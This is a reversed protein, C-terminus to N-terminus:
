HTHSVIRVGPRYVKALAESELFDEPCGHYILQRNLCALKAVESAIVGVDHTVLVLTTGQERNLRHLLRYFQEQSPADVGVLPEDLVILDPHNVLARAILVRQQQGLSLHGIRRNREDLLGLLELVHEVAERDAQTFLRGVGQRSVRGSAVVEEVTAPFRPDFATGQPLYGIRWWEQFRSVDTGFLRVTGCSPRLLGLMVKLLTTKGAGNPGIIGLFDGEEITLTVDDLVREGDYEYCVGALEVVPRASM